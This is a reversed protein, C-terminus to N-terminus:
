TSLSKGGEGANHATCVGLLHRGVILNANCSQPHVQCQKGWPDADHQKNIGNRARLAKPLRLSPVPVLITTHM